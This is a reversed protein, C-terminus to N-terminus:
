VLGAILPVVAQLLKLAQIGFNAEIYAQIRADNLDGALESFRVKQVETLPVTPTSDHGELREFAM